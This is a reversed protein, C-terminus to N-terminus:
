IKKAEVKIEGKKRCEGKKARKPGLFNKNRGITINKM